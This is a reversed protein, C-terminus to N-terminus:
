HERRVCASKRGIVASTTMPSVSCPCAGLWSRPTTRARITPHSLTDRGTPAHRAPVRSLARSRLCRRTALLRHPNGTTRPLAEAPQAPRTGAPLPRPSSTQRSQQYTRLTPHARLRAALRPAPLSPHVLAHVHLHQTLTQGWPHLVLTAGCNDCAAAHGGLAVTRCAEIARMARHRVGCLRHAERFASGHARFIEALEM